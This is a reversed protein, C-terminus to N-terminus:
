FRFRVAVAGGISTDETTESRIDEIDHRRYVYAASLDFNPFSYIMSIEGRGGLIGSEGQDVDEDLNQYLLDIDVGFKAFLRTGVLPIVASIPIRIGIYELDIQDLIGYRMAALGIGFTTLGDSISGRTTATSISVQQMHYGSDSASNSFNEDYYRLEVIKLFSQRSAGGLRLTIINSYSNDSIGSDADLSRSLTAREYSVSSANSAKPHPALLFCGILIYGARHVRFTM